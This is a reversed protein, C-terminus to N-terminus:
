PIRESDPHIQGMRKPPIRTLGRWAKIINFLTPLHHPPRFPFIHLAGAQKCRHAELFKLPGTILTRRSLCGHRVAAPRAANTIPQIHKPPPLRPPPHPGYPSKKVPQDAQLFICGKRLQNQQDSPGSGRTAHISLSHRRSMCFCM